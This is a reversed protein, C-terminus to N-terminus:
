GGMKLEEWYKEYLALTEDNLDTQFHGQSLIEKPPYITPNNRIEAPLEKQAILNTIPFGTYLAIEKAIDDRLLFNIFTYANEKHPANVPITLNDVWIVFGDKPLTFKINKNEQSAKFTDGNWAMGVTADEDIIISVVTESSFVKVNPMLEKLKLYAAKIHEPNDDNAPYGLAMLAMSFVERTDDLLMLKNYFRQDWLDAWKKISNPPFYNTNYFIGTIGWIFPVSYESQPDYAPNIFQPNLNKWNSLKTKDLKELLNQRHMRDVFYSSPMVIDYGANKKTARLKAYMVENNQYSSFNVKIKTEREFLRVVFDPIENAWVYVNLVKDAAHVSLPLVLLLLFFRSLLETGRRICVLRRKWFPSQATVFRKM